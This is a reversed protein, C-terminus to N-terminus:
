RQRRQQGRLRHQQARGCREGPLSPACHLPATLFLRIATMKNKLFWSCIVVSSGRMVVNTSCLSLSVSCSVCLESAKADNGDRLQSLMAHAVETWEM